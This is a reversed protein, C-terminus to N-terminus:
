ETVIQWFFVFSQEGEPLKWCLSYSRQKKYNINEEKWLWDGRIVITCLLLRKGRESARLMSAPTVIRLVALLSRGEYSRAFAIEGRLSAHLLPLSVHLFLRRVHKKSMATATAKTTAWVPAITKVGRYYGTYEYTEYVANEPVGGGGGGGSSFSLFFFYTESFPWWLSNKQFRQIITKTHFSLFLPKRIRHHWVDYLAHGTLPPLTNGDNQHPRSFAIWTLGLAM